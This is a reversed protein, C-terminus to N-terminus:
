TDEADVLLCHLMAQAMYKKVTRESVNLKQAIAKYRLGDLRNLLFAERVKVPLGSLMTDIQVLTEIIIHHTEASPIQAPPLSMLAERYAQEIDSRRWHNVVLGHAITTLYARPERLLFTRQKKLLRVFTDHSIDAAQSTCGLKQGLWNRLWGHHETYLQEISYTSEKLM